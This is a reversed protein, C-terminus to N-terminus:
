ITFALIYPTLDVRLKKAYVQLRVLDPKYKSGDLYLKLAKIAVENDLYRFADVVCRERDFINITYEGLKLPVVGLTVNRMRVIRVNDRRPARQKHPVAVWSERMVQDTLRYFCLASILCVVGNPISAAGQALGEWEFDVSTEMCASRYIGTHIRRLVGKKTYYALLQRSVGLKSAESVTFMPRGLLRELLKSKQSKRTMIM